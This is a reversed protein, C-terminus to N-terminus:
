LEEKLDLGMVERLRGIARNQIVKINNVSKGTIEATEKLSFDEIFRLLIVHCQNPTLLKKIIADLTTLQEREEQSLNISEGSNVSGVTDLPTTRQRERANDVIKHYAIQFLYSRLNERPGKGRKLHDLLESFVDGVIGDAEDPNGCLRFAYKYLIPAYCDFVTALADKDMNRIAMLLTTDDPQM